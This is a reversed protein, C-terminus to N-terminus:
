DARPTVPGTVLLGGSPVNAFPHAEFHYGTLAEACRACLFRPPGVFGTISRAGPATGPVQILILTPLAACHICELGWM